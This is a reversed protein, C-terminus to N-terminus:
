QTGTGDNTFKGLNGFLQELIGLERGRSITKHDVPIINKADDLAYRRVEKVFGTKDFDIAVVKQDLVEEEFFALQQTHRSVYYWTDSEFTSVSTPSGVLRVVKRKNDIGTKLKNITEATPVYGRVQEIPTCATTALLGLAIVTTMALQSAKTRLKIRDSFM